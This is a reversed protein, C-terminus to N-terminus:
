FTRTSATTAGPLIRFQVRDSSLTDDGPWGTAYAWTTLSSPEVGHQMLYSLVSTVRDRALEAGTSAMLDEDGFGIVAIRYGALEGSSFCNALHDLVAEDQLEVSREGPSFLIDTHLAGCAAGVDSDFVVGDARVYSPAANAIALPTTLIGAAFISSLIRNM